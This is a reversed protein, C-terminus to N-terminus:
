TAIFASTNLFQATFHADVSLDGTPAGRAWPLWDAIQNWSAFTLSVQQEEGEGLRRRRM